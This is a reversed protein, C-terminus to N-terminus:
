HFKPLSWKKYFAVVRLVIGFILVISLFFLNLLGISNLLYILLAILLSVSGYFGTKFIFPVQNIIIDRTVGGGVAAIFAISLIGTLNFGHDIATLAGSISFSALGISDSIIFLPRNQIDDQKHLKLLIMMAIVFIITLGPMGHIFSYPKENVIIDRIVGGGLATLFVSIVMGLFDLNHKTSVFFGSMAFAVIGIYESIEFM